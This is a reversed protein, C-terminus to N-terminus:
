GCDGYLDSQVEQQYHINMSCVANYLTTTLYGRINNIRSTNNKLCSLVYEVHYYNIKLFQAKVLNYPYDVGNIRIVERNVCVVDCIIRYIEEVLDREERQMWNDYCINESILKKQTNIMDNGDIKEISPNIHNIHNNYSYETNNINTYNPNFNKVELFETEKNRSTLNNSKQFNFLKVESNPLIDGNQEDNLFKEDCVSIFNKVYIIDPKGQGQRKKEILGIGKKSDLEAMIKTCTPKSCGLDEVMDDVSYYIYVRNHKDLWGNKMSLAMRDLMLGYLIKADNSIKKFQKGKVLLKPVRYFAFQESESGYYYEFM